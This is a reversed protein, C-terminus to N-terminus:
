QTTARRKRPRRNQAQTRADTWRCNEPSYGANNDQRDLSYCPPCRGMDTLFAEFSTMWRDCITIGRAGYDKFHKNNPNTVRAKMATWAQYERSGDGVAEGHTTRRARAGELQLCGCSKTKGSRVNDGVLIVRSGCQCVFEWYTRRKKVYELKVATLRGFRKGEIHVIASM